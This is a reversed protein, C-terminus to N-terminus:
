RRVKGVRKKAAPARSTATTDGIKVLTVTIKDHKPGRLDVDFSQPDSKAMEPTLECPNSIIDGQTNSSLKIVYIGPPTKTAIIRMVYRRLTPGETKRLEFSQSDPTTAGSVLEVRPIDAIDIFQIQQIPM